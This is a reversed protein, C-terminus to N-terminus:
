EDDERNTQVSDAMEGFSTDEEDLSKTITFFNYTVYFNLKDDNVDYKLSTGRYTVGDYTIYKLCSFLRDAVAHCESRAKLTSPFYQVVMPVSAKSRGMLKEDLAPRIVNLFFSPRTLNQEVNDAYIKYTSGFEDYLSNSVASIVETVM